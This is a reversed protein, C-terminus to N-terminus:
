ASRARFKPEQRGVSSLILGRNLSMIALSDPAYHGACAQSALFHDSFGPIRCYGDEPAENCPGTTLFLLAPWIRDRLRGAGASRNSHLAESLRERYQDVFRILDDVALGHEARESSPQSSTAIIMHAIPSGGLDARKSQRDVADAFFHLPVLCAGSRIEHAERVRNQDQALRSQRWRFRYPARYRAVSRLCRRSTLSVRAGSSRSPYASSAASRLARLSESRHSAIGGTSSFLRTWSITSRIV